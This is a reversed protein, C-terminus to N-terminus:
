CDKDRKMFSNATGYAGRNEGWNMKMGAKTIKGRVRRKTGIDFRITLKSKDISINQLAVEDYALGLENQLEAFTGVYKGNETAIKIVGNGIIGESIERLDSYCGVVSVAQSSKQAVAFTTAGVLIILCWLFLLTKRTMIKTVNLANENALLFRVVSSIVHPSVAM